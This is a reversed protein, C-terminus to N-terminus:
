DAFTCATISVPRDTGGRGFGLVFIMLGDCAGAMAWLAIGPVLSTRGGHGGVPPLELGLDGGDVAAADAGIPRFLALVPEPGIGEGVEATIVRNLPDGGESGDPPFQEEAAQMRFKGSPVEGLKVQKVGQRLEAALDTRLFDKGRQDLFPALRVGVFEAQRRLEVVM